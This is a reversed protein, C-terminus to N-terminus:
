PVSNDQSSFKLFCKRAMIIDLSATEFSTITSVLEVQFLFHKPKIKSKLFIARLSIPYNRNKRRTESKPLSGQLEMVLLLIFFDRAHPFPRHRSSLENPTKDKQRRFALAFISIRMSAKEQKKVRKSKDM